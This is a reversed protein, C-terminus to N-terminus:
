KGRGRMKGDSMGGKSKRKWGRDEVEGSVGDEEDGRGRRSQRKRREKKGGEGGKSSQM